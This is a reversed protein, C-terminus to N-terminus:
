NQPRTRLANIELSYIVPIQILLYGHGMRFATIDDGALNTRKARTKDAIWLLDPGGKFLLAQNASSKFAAFASLKLRHYLSPRLM